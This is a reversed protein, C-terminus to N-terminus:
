TPTSEMAAITGGHSLLAGADGAASGHDGQVHADGSASGSARGPHVGGGHGVGKGVEMRDVREYLVEM